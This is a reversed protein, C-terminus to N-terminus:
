IAQPLGYTYIVRALHLLRRIVHYAARGINIKGM